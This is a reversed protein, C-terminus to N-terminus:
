SEAEGIENEVGCGSEKKKNNNNRYKNKPSVCLSIM